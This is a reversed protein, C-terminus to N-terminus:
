TVWIEYVNGAKYAGVQNLCGYKHDAMSFGATVDSGYRFVQNYIRSEVDIGETSWKENEMDGCKVGNGVTDCADPLIDLEGIFYKLMRVRNPNPFATTFFRKSNLGNGCLFKFLNFRTLKYLMNLVTTSIRVQTGQISSLKTLTSISANIPGNRDMRIKAIRTSGAAGCVVRVKRLDRWPHTDYSQRNSLPGFYKRLSKCSVNKGTRIDEPIVEASTSLATLNCHKGYYPPFCWQCYYTNNNFYPICVSGHECILPNLTCMNQTEYVDFDTDDMVYYHNTDLNGTFFGCYFPPPTNKRIAFTNCEETNICRSACQVKTQVNLVKIEVGHITVNEHKKFSAYTATLTVNNPLEVVKVNAHTHIEKLAFVISLVSYLLM